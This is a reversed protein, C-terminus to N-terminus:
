ECFEVTLIDEGKLAVNNRGIFSYSRDRDIYFEDLNDISIIKESVNTKKHMKITKLDDILIYVGARLNINAKM